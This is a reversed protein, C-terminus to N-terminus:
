FEYSTENQLRIFLTEKNTIKFYILHILLLDPVPLSKELNINVLCYSSVAARLQKM